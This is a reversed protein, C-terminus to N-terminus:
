TEIDVIRSIFFVGVSELALGIGLIALGKATNFM